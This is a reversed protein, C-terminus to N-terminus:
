WILSPGVTIHIAVSDLVFEFLRGVYWFLRGWIFFVFASRDFDAACLAVERMQGEDLGRASLGTRADVAAAEAVGLLLLRLVGLALPVRPLVLSNLRRVFAGSIVQPFFSSFIISFSYAFTNRTRKRVEYSARWLSLFEDFPRDSFAGALDVQLCTSLCRSESVLSM